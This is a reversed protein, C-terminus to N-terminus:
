HLDVWAGNAYGQFKNTDTNYVLDGNAATLADRQATTFSPMRLQSGTVIVGDAADLTLTTASSFEASGTGSTVFNDATVTGTFYADRFKNSSSGIDYTGDNPAAINSRVTGDLNFASLVGDILITSDQGFVSGVLDGTNNVDVTITGDQLDAETIFGSNNVLQSINAGPQLATDAKAGQVSTAADTIGFGALTTPKTGVDDWDVSTIYGVNNTLQGVNDGPVLVNLDDTLDSLAIPRGTLDSYLGSTAVDALNAGGVTFTLGPVDLAAASITGTATIDTVGIIANGTLNLNDGNPIEKIKNNDLTDVILPFRNAM